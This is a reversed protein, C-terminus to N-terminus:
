VLLGILLIGMTNMAFSLPLFVRPKIEGVGMLAVGLEDPLPSAIIVAGAVLMAWSFWRFRWMRKLHKSTHAKVFGVLEDTLNTKLFKFLVLDGFMAGLGGILAVPILPAGGNLIHYFMVGSPVITLFSTFFFGAIFAGLLVFSTSFALIHSVIGTQSIIIAVAMGGSFLLAHSIHANRQQSSM